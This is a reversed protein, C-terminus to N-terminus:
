FIVKNILVEKLLEKSPKREVTFFLTESLMKNKENLFDKKIIM